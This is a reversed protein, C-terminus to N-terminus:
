TMENRTSKSQKTVDPQRKVDTKKSDSEYTTTSPNTRREDHNPSHRDPDRGSRDEATWWVGTGALTM